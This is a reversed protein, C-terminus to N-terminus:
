REASCGPRPDGEDGIFFRLFPLFIAILDNINLSIM